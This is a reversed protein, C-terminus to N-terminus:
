QAIVLEQATRAGGAGVVLEVYAVHGFLWSPTFLLLYFTVPKAHPAHNGRGRANGKSRNTVVAIVGIAGSRGSRASLPGQIQETKM